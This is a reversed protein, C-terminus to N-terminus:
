ELFLTIYQTLTTHAPACGLNVYDCWFWTKMITIVLIIRDFMKANQKSEVYKIFRFTNFTDMIACLYLISPHEMTFTIEYIM